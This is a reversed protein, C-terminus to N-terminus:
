SLINGRLQQFLSGGLVSHFSERYSIYCGCLDAKLALKCIIWPPAIKEEHKGGLVLEESGALEAFGNGARIHDM